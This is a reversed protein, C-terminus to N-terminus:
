GGIPCSLLLPDARCRKEHPSFTPHVQRLEDGVFHAAAADDLAIGPKIEGKLLLDHFAPRREAETDFHPCCSGPLFGLCPIARYGDGFSDTIAEEFWCMGGASTGALVVGTSWAERLVEPLGWERWVALMSKTNGGGVYIIDQNLLFSRLDPTREFFSLHSPQCGM